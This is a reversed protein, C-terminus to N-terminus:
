HCVIGLTRSSTYTYYCGPAPTCFNTNVKCHNDCPLPGAVYPL